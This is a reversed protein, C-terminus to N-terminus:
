PSHLQIVIPGSSVPRRHTSDEAVPVPVDIRLRPRERMERERRQRELQEIMWTPIM